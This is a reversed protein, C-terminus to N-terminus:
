SRRSGFSPKRRDHRIVTIRIRDTYTRFLFHYPFRQLSARRRGSPDFHHREPFRTAYEIAALLEAWFANGLGTSISDYYDAADRAEKPVSPHYTTERM